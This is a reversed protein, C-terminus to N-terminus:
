LIAIPNVPSGTGSRIRLPAITFLFEWRNIRACTSALDELNCNDILWLGLHPLAIQHIPLRINSYGSPFVDSVTDGGLVAISKKHIWPICAAQLGPYGDAPSRPGEETRRKYNGTRVLLIDGDRFKVNQEKAIQDLEDPMIAEAPNMWDVGRSRAADILVGRSVVGNKLVEISEKTAGERTTVLSSPRNNHMKGNWFMHSLSDIHTISHGHFSMGIFDGSSQQPVLQQATNDLSSEGSGTMYHIVPSAISDPASEMSIPRSCSITIGERVLTSAYKIQEPGIHNVTGLEDEDGWRGWNTITSAYNLVDEETPIQSKAM